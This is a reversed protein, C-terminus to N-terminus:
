FQFGYNVKVEEGFSKVDSESSNLPYVSAFHCNLHPLLEQSLSATLVKSTGTYSVGATPGDPFLRKTLTLRYREDEREFPDQPPAAWPNRSSPATGLFDFSGNLWPSTLFIKVTRSQLTTWTSIRTKEAIDFHLPQGFYSAVLSAVIGLPQILVKMWESEKLQAVLLRFRRRERNIQHRSIRRLFGKSFDIMERNHFWELDHGVLGYKSNQDYSRNMREWQDQIRILEELDIADDLWASRNPNKIQALYTHNTRLDISLIEIGDSEFIGARSVPNWLTGLVEVSLLLAWIRRRASRVM